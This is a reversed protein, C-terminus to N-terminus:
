ATQVFRAQPALNVMKGRHDAYADALEGIKFIVSDAKTARMM